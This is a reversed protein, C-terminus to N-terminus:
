GEGTGGSAAGNCAQGATRSESGVRISEVLVGPPQALKGAGREYATVGGDAAGAESTRGM